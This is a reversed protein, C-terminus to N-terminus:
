VPHLNPTCQPRAHAATQPSLMYVRPRKRNVRKKSKQADFLAISGRSCGTSLIPTTRAASFGALETPTVLHLSVEVRYIIYAAGGLGSIPRLRRGTGLCTDVLRHVETSETCRLGIKTRTEDPKLARM